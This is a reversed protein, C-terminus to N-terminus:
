QPAQLDVADIKSSRDVRILLPTADPGKGRAASIYTAGTIPNVAVDNLLLQKARSATALRVLAM